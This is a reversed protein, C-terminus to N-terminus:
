GRATTEIPSKKVTFVDVVMGPGISTELPNDIADRLRQLDVVEENKDLKVARGRVPHREKEETGTRKAGRCAEEL